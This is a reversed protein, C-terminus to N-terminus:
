ARRRQQERAPATATPYRLRLGGASDSMAAATRRGRCRPLRLFGHGFRQASPLDVNQHDIM